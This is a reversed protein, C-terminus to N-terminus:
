LSRGSTCRRTARDRNTGPGVIPPANSRGTLAYDAGARPNSLLPIGICDDVTSDALRASAIRAHPESCVVVSGGVLGARRRPETAVYVATSSSVWPRGPPAELM